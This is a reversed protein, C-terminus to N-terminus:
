RPSATEPTFGLELYSGALQTSAADLERWTMADDAAVVAPADPDRALGAALLTRLDVPADLTKGLIPM